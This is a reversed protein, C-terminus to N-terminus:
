MANEPPTDEHILPPLPPAEPSMPKAIKSYGESIWGMPDVLQPAKDMRRVMHTRLKGPQENEEGGESSPTTPGKRSFFSGKKTAPPKPPPKGDEVSKVQQNLWM